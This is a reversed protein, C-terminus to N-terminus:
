LRRPLQNKKSRISMLHALLAVQRRIRPFGFAMLPLAGLEFGRKLGLGLVAHCVKVM